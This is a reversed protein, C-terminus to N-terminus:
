YSCSYLMFKSRVRGEVLDCGTPVVCSQAQEIILFKSGPRDTLSIKYDRMLNAVLSWNKHLAGPCISVRESSIGVLPQAVFSQYYEKSRRPKGDRAICVGVGIVLGLVLSLNVWNKPRGSITNELEIFSPRFYSAIALAFFPMSLMLYWSMNKPSIVLPLSTVLGMFLFFLFPGSKEKKIRRTVGYNLITAFVLMVAADGLIKLLIYFHPNNVERKGTLSLEIQIHFYNRFFRHSESHYYFFCGALLCLSIQVFYIQLLRFVTTNRCTVYLLVPAVVPYLGFPGKILFGAVIMLASGLAYIVRQLAGEALTAEITFLVSLLCAFQLPGELENNTLIWSTIPASLLLVAPVWRAQRWHLSFWIRSMLFFVIFWMFLSYFSEVYRSDGFLKYFLSLLWIGLPPHEFFQPYIISTYHASWFGGVGEAMNRAITAYLVGDVFM